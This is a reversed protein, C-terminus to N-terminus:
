CRSWARRSSCCPSTSRGRSPPSACSSRIPERSLGPQVLYWHGLLMADTVLGLLLAGAILRAASLAYPGGVTQATALLASSGSPPHSWTSTRRIAGRM